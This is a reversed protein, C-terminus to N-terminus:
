ISSFSEYPEMEGKKLREIKDRCKTIIHMKLTGSKTKDLKTLHIEEEYRRIMLIKFQEILEHEELEGISPDVKIGILSDAADGKQLLEGIEFRYHRFLQLSKDYNLINDILTPKNILTKVIKGEALDKHAIKKGSSTQQSKKVTIMSAAIKLVSSLYEKYEQAIIPSLTSLFSRSEEFARNKQEPIGIDYKEIIKDIVFESFAKPKELLNQLEAIRNQNVMDAPDLGGGFIVVGGEISSKALIRSARFAAEIGANDGDYALIVKADFKKIIPAHEETLATGLTAVSNNFGGQHLMIVDMYGECVILEKKKYINEKAVDLGYLLRSKNFIKSQPSNVYKAPHNDITRGGFGICKGTNSKIPFTIRNIFRPFFSRDKGLIGLSVCEDLNFFSGRLFRMFSDPDPAFGLEFKEIFKEQIGRELLYAYARKNEQLNQKFYTNIKEVIGTDLTNKGKSEYELAYNHMLALKEIAEPYTLHEYEMVFKIADGGKGCGFCHFIQKQPSIVLSPTKEDHFPCIAKFTAGSKKVEIYNSVVDVIDSQTLLGEISAKSIM